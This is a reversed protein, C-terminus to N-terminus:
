QKAGDNISAIKKMLIPKLVQETRNIRDTFRMRDLMEDLRRDTNDNTIYHVRVNDNFRVKRDM